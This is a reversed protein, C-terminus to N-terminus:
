LHDRKCRNIVIDKQSLGPIKESFLINIAQSMSPFGRQKLNAEVKTGASMGIVSNGTM